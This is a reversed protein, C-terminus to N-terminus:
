DPLVIEIPQIRTWPGSSSCLSFIKEPPVPLQHILRGDKVVRLEFKRKVYNFENNRKLMCSAQAQNLVVTLLGSQNFPAEAVYKEARYEWTNPYKKVLAENISRFKIKLAGKAYTCSDALLTDTEVLFITLSSDTDLSGKINPLRIIVASSGDFPCHQAMISPTISTALFLILIWKKM